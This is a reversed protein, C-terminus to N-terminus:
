ESAEKKFYINISARRASYVSTHFQRIEKFRPESLNGYTKMLYEDAGVTSGNPLNANVYLCWKKM